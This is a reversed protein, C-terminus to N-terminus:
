WWCSAVVTGSRVCSAGYRSGTRRHVSQGDLALDVDDHDAATGRPEGGRRPEGAIPSTDDHHVGALVAGVLDLARVAVQAAVRLRRALEQRAATLLHQGIGVGVQERVDDLRRPLEGVPPERHRQAVGRRQHRVPEHEGAPHDVGLGVDGAQLLM